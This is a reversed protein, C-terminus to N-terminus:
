SRTELPLDRTIPEVFGSVITASAEPESLGRSM